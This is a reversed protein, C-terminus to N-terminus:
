LYPIIKCIAYYYKLRHEWLTNGGYKQMQFTENAKKFDNEDELEFDSFNTGVFAIEDIIFKLKFSQKNISFNQIIIDIDHNADQYHADYKDLLASPKCM